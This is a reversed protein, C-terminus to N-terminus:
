PQSVSFQYRMARNPKPCPRFTPSPSIKVSKSTTATPVAIKVFVDQERIDQLAELYWLCTITQNTIKSYWTFTFMKLRNTKVFLSNHCPLIVLLNYLVM